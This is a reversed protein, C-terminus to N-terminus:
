EAKNPISLNDMKHSFGMNMIEQREPGALVRIQSNSYVLHSMFVLSICSVNLLKSIPCKLIKVHQFRSMKFRQSKSVKFNQFVYYGGVWGGVATEPGRGPERSGHAM